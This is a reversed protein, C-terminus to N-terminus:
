LADGSLLPGLVTDALVTCFYENVQSIRGNELTFVMCYENNYAKGNALTAHGVFEVAVSDGDAVVRKIEPNMGEPMLDKFAGITALITQRERRGSIKAFGKAVTFANDTICRAATDPDGRGMADIFTLVVEKNQESM